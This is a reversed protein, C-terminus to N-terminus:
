EVDHRKTLHPSIGLAKILQALCRDADYKLLGDAIVVSRRGRAKTNLKLCYWAGHETEQTREIRARTIDSADFHLTRSIFLQGRTLELTKMRVVVRSRSFWLGWATTGVVLAILGLFIGFGIVAGRGTGYYSLVWPTAAFVSAFATYQLALGPHRAAAFRMHVGGSADNEVSVGRGHPLNAEADTVRYAQAADTAPQEHTVTFVPVVFTAYYHVRGISSQATLRWRIHKKDHDTPSSHPPIDFYIPIRTGHMDGPLAPVLTQESHWLTTAHRQRTSDSPMEFCSLTLHVPASFQIAKGTVITGALQGGIAGPFPSLELRSGGTKRRLITFYVAVGILLADMAIVVPPGIWDSLGLHRRPPPHMLDHISAATPLATGAVFVMALVWLGVSFIRAQDNVVRGAWAPNSLWPSAQQAPRSEM